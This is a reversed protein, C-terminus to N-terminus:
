RRDPDSSTDDARRRPDHDLMAPARTGAAGSRVSGLELKAVAAAVSPELGPQVSGLELKAVAVAVSPELGPQEPEPKAVALAASPQGLWLTAAAAVASPELAPLGSGLWRAASLRLALQEAVYEVIVEDSM